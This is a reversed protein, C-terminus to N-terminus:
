VQAHRRRRRETQQQEERPSQRSANALAASQRACRFFPCCPVRRRSRRPAKHQRAHPPTPPPCRCVREVAARGRMCAYAACTHRSKAIRSLVKAKKEQCARCGEGKQLSARAHRRAEGPKQWTAGTYIWPAAMHGTQRCKSPRKAARAGQTSVTVSQVRRERRYSSLCIKAHDVRRVPPFVGNRPPTAAV